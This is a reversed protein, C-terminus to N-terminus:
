RAAVRRLVATDTAVNDRTMRLLVATDTAVNDRTM